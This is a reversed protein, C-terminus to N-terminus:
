TFRSTMLVDDDDDDDDDHKYESTNNISRCSSECQDTVKV